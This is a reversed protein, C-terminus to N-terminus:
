KKKEEEHNILTFRDSTFPIFQFLLDSIYTFFGLLLPIKFIYVKLIKSEM